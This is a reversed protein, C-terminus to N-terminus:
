QAEASTRSKNFTIKRILIFGDGFWLAAALLGMIGGSLTAKVTYTSVAVLSLICMLAAAFFSNFVDVLPWFFFVSTKNLKLLYLLFFGLTIFFEMCTAAIYPPRSAVTFSVFAVFVCVYTQILDDEPQQVTQSRVASLVENSAQNLNSPSGLVPPYGYPKNPFYISQPPEKVTTDQQLIGDSEECSGCCRISSEPEESPSSLIPLSLVVPSITPSTTVHKCCPYVQTTEETPYKLTEVNLKNMHVQDLQEVETLCDEMSSEPICRQLLAGVTRVLPKPNFSLSEIPTNPDGSITEKHIAISQPGSIDSRAEMVLDLSHGRHGALGKSKISKRFIPNQRFALDPYNNWMELISKDDTMFSSSTKEYAGDDQPRKTEEDQRHHTELSDEQLQEPHEVLACDVEQDDEFINKNHEEADESMSLALPTLRQQLVELCQDLSRQNMLELFHDCALRALFLDFGIKKVEESDFNDSLKFETDTERYGIMKLIGKSFPLVPMIYYVFHGTFTKLTKIEKKWPFLFLNVCFTELLKLATTFDNVRRRYDRQELCRYLTEWFLDPLPESFSLNKRLFLSSGDDDAVQAKSCLGLSSDFDVGGYYKLYKAFVEDRYRPVREEVCNTM